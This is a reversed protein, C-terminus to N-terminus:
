KRKNYLYNYSQKQFEKLFDGKRYSFLLWKEFNTTWEEYSLHSRHFWESCTQRNQLYKFFDNLDSDVTIWVLDIGHSECYNRKATDRALQAALTEHAKELSGAWNGALFFHQPGQIEVAINQKPLYIDFPLNCHPFRKEKEFEYDSHKPRYLLAKHITGLGIAKMRKPKKEKVLVGLGKKSYFYKGDKVCYDLGYINFLRWLMKYNRGALRSAEKREVFSAPVEEAECFTKPGSLQEELLKQVIPQRKNLEEQTIM